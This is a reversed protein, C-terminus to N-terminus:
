EVLVGVVAKRSIHLGGLIPQALREALDQSVILTGGLTGWGMGTLLFFLWAVRSFLLFFFFFFFFFFPEVM